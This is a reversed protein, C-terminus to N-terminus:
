LMPGWTKTGSIKMLMREIAMEMQLKLCSRGKSSSSKQATLMKCNMKKARL